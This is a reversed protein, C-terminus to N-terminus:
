FEASSPDCEIYPVPKSRKALRAAEKVLARGVGRRRLDHRVQLIGIRYLGGALFGAVREQDDFCAILLRQRQYSEVVNWNCLFNDMVGAAEEQELMHRVATLDRNTVKRIMM